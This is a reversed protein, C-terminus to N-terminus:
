ESYRPENYFPSVTSQESSKGCSEALIKLYEEKVSTEVSECYLALHAMMDPVRGRAQSDGCYKCVSPSYGGKRVQEEFHDWVPNKKRGPKKPESHEPVEPIIDDDLVFPEPLETEDFFYLESM